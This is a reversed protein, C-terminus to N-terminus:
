RRTTAPAPWFLWYEYPKNANPWTPQPGAPYTAIGPLPGPNVGPSCTPPSGPHCGAGPGSVDYGSAYAGYAHQVAPLRIGTFTSEGGVLTFDSAAGNLGCGVTAAGTGGRCYPVPTNQVVYDPLFDFLMSTSDDVTMVINPKASTSINLPQDALPTLAAYAPTAVPGLRSDRSCPRSDPPTSPSHDTQRTMTQARPNQQNASRRSSVFSTTNKPGDIRVHRPLLAFERRPVPPITSTTGPSQKPPLMDCWANTAKNDVPIAAAAPNCMREIVYTIDNDAQDKFQVKLARASSKTQLPQPIGYKNDWGAAQDHTAYYNQSPDNVERGRDHAYGQERRRLTRGDGTGGAFNAPLISAQRFALNGVALNSTNTANILAIAGISMLVMVILAIFL